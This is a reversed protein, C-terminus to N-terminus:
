ASHDMQQYFRALYLACGAHSPWKMFCGLGRINLIAGCLHCGQGKRPYLISCCKRKSGEYKELDVTNSVACRHPWIGWLVSDPTQFVWITHDCLRGKCPLWISGLCPRLFNSGIFSNEFDRNSHGHMIVKKGRRKAAHLLLFDRPGYTNIHVCWLRRFYIQRIRFGPM